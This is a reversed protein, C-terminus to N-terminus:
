QIERGRQQARRSVEAPRLRGGDLEVGDRGGAVAPVHQRVQGRERRVTGPLDSARRQGADHGPVGVLEPARLDVADKALDSSLSTM